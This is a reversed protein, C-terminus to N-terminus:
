RGGGHGPGHCVGTIACFVDDWLHFPVGLMQVATEWWPNGNNNRDITFEATYVTQSEDASAADGLASVASIEVLYDGDPVRWDTTREGHQYGSDLRGDWTYPQFSADGPHRGLFEEELFTATPGFQGGREGDDSAYVTMQLSQAPHELHVLMTPVDGDTMTYTTGEPALNYTGGMVCDVGIFRECEALSGLTPLGNGIDTMLPLSQYDGAFGAYPIRVPEGEDPTLVVYGGYQALELDANPSITVDFSASQGAGVSVTEPADVTSPASFFSPNDPDGGTAVADEYSVTYTVAQDGSNSVTLTETAPGAESEGLSLASPTVSTAALIADDIDLMGAGQRFAPGLVGYDPSLAWLAPDATNRMLDKVQAPTVDRAELMLAAAGAVHPSSMSTGSMSGYEGNELPITSWIQGGPAGLDPKLKLDATMGYSSFSSILGGTPSPESSLEETWVLDTAEGAAIAATIATGSELSVAAVPITIPIEGEVTPNILGPENNALVIGAAGAEQVNVAKDYFACTGRSVVVIQDAFDGTLPACAEEEGSAPVALPAGGSTPIVPSGSGTTYPYAADDPSTTFVNTTFSTNDYSAVGIASDSVGPAGASWTGLEGDNGISAVVVMGADTLNDSAVATPYQPWSAFGAGVSMNLVDMGDALAMEMAALMIDTDTSGGCGFVRYAGFTVGPAVGRVEDQAPDGNAGVIGAVHTGHGYCDDPDADPQPEPQYDPSAPDANYDDGVFDHGHTVRATPFSTGEGSGGLDPHDYDVGTDLIGVRIGEGTYGLESQAIDAGTMALASVMDPTEASATDPPLNVTMVPFVAQVSDAEALVAADRDSMEASFGTWLQAYTQRVEVDLGLDEAEAVAADASRTNASPSGGQVTPTGGTQVFWAGTPSSEAQLGTAGASAGYDSATGLDAVEDASAASLPVLTSLALAAIGGCAVARRPRVRDSSQPRRM